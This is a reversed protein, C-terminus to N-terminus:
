DAVVSAAVTTAPQHTRQPVPPVGLDLAAPAGVPVVPTRPAIPDLRQYPRGLEPRPDPEGLNPWFAMAREAQATISLSPNVGLNASLSSGDVVHLGPHGYLRQYPDIVGREPSSGIPCGGIFHATMPVNLLEGTSGGPDGDLMEALRRATRNAAPIWRPNSEGHGRGSTLWGRRTRRVTISNELSQMVLGIITRESWRRVSTARWARRPHRLMQGLARLPRPIRGEGDTIVTLLMGMLNSGKGYRCPEVHTSEDPYWSSTIAVGHTLSTDPTDAPVRRATASVLSESNTRTLEGLRTSVRPLVGTDRLRHLLTQTGWAGAAFVVQDATFERRAAGRARTPRTTVSYGGGSQEAVPVAHALDHLQRPRQAGLRWEM